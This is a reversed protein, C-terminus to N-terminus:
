HRVNELDRADVRADEEILCEVVKEHGNFTTIM